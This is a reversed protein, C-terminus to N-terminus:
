ATKQEKKLIDKDFIRVTTEGNSNQEENLLVFTSVM